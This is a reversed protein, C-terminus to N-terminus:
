PGKVQSVIIGSVAQNLSFLGDPLQEMTNIGRGVGQPDSLLNKHAGPEAEVRSPTILSKLSRLM